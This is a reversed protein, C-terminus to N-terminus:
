QQIGGNLGFGTVTQVSGSLWDIFSIRGESYVQSVFVKHIDQALAAIADPPSGLPFDDTLFSTLSIREAIRVGANDDRLLVFAYSSNPTIAFPNPDAATQQLKTFGDALRIMTYGYSSAATSASRTGPSGGTGALGSPTHLVLATNEDPAVAVARVAMQLAVTQYSESGLDFVILSDVPIATTYLVAYKGQASMTVSGVTEGQFQWTTRQSATTFGGPISLRVLKSEERLVAFAASGSPLVVLDTVASSLNLTTVSGSQLDVLLVQSTGDRRAIAYAGDPTVSVDVVDAPPGATPPTGSPADGLPAPGADHASVSEGDAQASAGGDASSSLADVSAVSGDLGTNGGTGESADAALPPETDRTAGADVAVLSTTGNDITIFPAIDPETILAFRLESIGSDTVVFAATGDSSFVVASPNYGVSMSIVSGQAPTTTTAPTLSVVSVEQTSGTVPMGGSSTSGTTTDTQSADFWIVAHAGDPAVAIANALAVIPIPGSNMRVDSLVRLTHSGVNIVLAVDQGPVTALYTPTDGPALQTISLNTSDIVDVTNSTPNAVYVYRAGALPPLFNLNEKQEAPLTSSGEASSAGGAGESVAVPAGIGLSGASASAGSSPAM